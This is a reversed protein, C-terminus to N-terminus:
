SGCLEYVRQNKVFMKFFYDLNELVRKEFYFM